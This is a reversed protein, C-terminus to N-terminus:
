KEVSAAAAGLKEKVLAADAPNEVGVLIQGNSVEPDYIDPSRLRLLGAGAVFTIAAALVAGLMTLEFMVILNTWYSVIPMGGTQIPWDTQTWSTLIWGAALGLAAGLVAIWSTWRLGRDEDIELEELPSSSLITIQRSQFGAARLRAAAQAASHVDAYLAYVAKM